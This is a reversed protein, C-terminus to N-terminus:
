GAKVRSRSSSPNTRVEGTSKQTNRRNAALLAPSKRLSM